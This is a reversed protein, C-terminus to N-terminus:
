VRIWLKLVAITELPSLSRPGKGGEMVEEWRRGAGHGVGGGGHVVDAREDDRVRVCEGYL